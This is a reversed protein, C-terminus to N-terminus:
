DDFDADGERDVPMPIRGGEANGSSSGDRFPWPERELLSAPPSDDHAWPDRPM